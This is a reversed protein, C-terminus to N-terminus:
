FPWFRFRKRPRLKKRVLPVSDLAAERGREVCFDLRDFDAWHISSVKPRIIVDASEARMLNLRRKVIDDVRFNIDLGSSRNFDGGLADTLDVAIVLDAGLQRVADVPISATAGGDVLVKGESELCPFLGPISLSALVAPILPGSTFVVDEGTVLDLAVCAFPLELKEIDVDPLSTAVLSAIRDGSVLNPRIVTKGLIYRKKVFDTIRRFLNPPQDKSVFFEFGIASFADSKLIARAKERLKAADPEAAYIAGVLAGISTGGVCFLEIGNEELIELVGIHAMGKSSGGGLAVGIRPAV